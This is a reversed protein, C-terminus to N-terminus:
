LPLFIVRNEMESPEFVSCILELDDVCRGITVELQHAYIVGAFFKGTRQFQAALVLLDRDQRFLVRGLEVARELLVEDDAERRGDEHATLVDVSRQRVGQTIEDRIHHNM